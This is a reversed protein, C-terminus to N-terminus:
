TCIWRTEGRERLSVFANYKRFKWVKSVGDISPSPSNLRQFRFVCDTQSENATSSSSSCVTAGFWLRVVISLHELVNMLMFSRDIGRVRHHSVNSSLNKVNFYSSPLIFFGHCRPHQVSECFVTNYRSGTENIQERFLSCLWMHTAQAHVHVNHATNRTTEKWSSCAVTVICLWAHRFIVTHSQQSNRNACLAFYPIKAISKDRNWSIYIQVKYVESNVVTFFLQCM